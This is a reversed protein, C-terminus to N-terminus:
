LIPYVMKPSALVISRSHRSRQDLKVKKFLNYKNIKLSLPLSPSFPLSVNIHSLFMENTAEQMGGLLPGPGCGLCTGQGPNSGAAKQNTPRHGVWQTM